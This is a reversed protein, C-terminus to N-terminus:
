LVNMEEIKGTVQQTHISEMCKLDECERLVCHLCDVNEAEIWRHRPDDPPTWAVPDSAGNISLTPTGVAV